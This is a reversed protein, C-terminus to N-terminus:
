RGYILEKIKNKIYNFSMIYLGFIVSGVYMFLCILWVVVLLLIAVINLLVAKWDPQRIQEICILMDECLGKHTKMFGDTQDKIFEKM